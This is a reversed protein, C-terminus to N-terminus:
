KRRSAFGVQDFSTAQQVLLNYYDPHGLGREIMGQPTIYVVDREAEGYFPYWWVNELQKPKHLLHNTIPTYKTM